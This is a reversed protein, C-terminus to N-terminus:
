FADKKGDRIKTAPSYTKANLLPHCIQGKFEGDQMVSPHYLVPDFVLAPATFPYDPAFKLGFKIM